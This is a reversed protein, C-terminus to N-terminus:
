DAAQDEEAPLTPRAPPQGKRLEAQVKRIARISIITDESLSPIWRRLVVRLVTVLGAAGLVVPALWGPVQVM